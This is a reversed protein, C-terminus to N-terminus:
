KKKNKRTMKEKVGEAVAQIKFADTIAGSSDRQPAGKSANAQRLVDAQLGSKSTTYAAKAKAPAAMVNSVKDVVGKGFSGMKKYFDSARM